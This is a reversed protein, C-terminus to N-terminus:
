HLMYSFYSLNVSNQSHALDKHVICGCYGLAKNKLTKNVCAWVDMLVSNDAILIPLLDM